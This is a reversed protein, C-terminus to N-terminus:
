WNMRKRLSEIQAIHHAGHWSYLALNRDLTVLGLEPHRFTRSWERDSISELMFVWRKHLAELLDLSYDIPANRSDALEAWRDEMYSRITPDEETLALRFRTYANLHSDPVHHVVQRVNWGGPRYPTSLQEANLSDVTKRMKEPIRAISQIFEERQQPTAVGKYEFKGIPYRLDEEM